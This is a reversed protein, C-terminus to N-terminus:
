QVYKLGQRRAEFSGEVNNDEFMGLDQLLAFTNAAAGKMQFRCNEGNSEFVCPGGSYVLTCNTFHCNIFEMNDIELTVDRILRNEVRKM